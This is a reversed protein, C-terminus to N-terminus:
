RGANPKHVKRAAGCVYMFAGFDYSKPAKVNPFSETHAARTRWLAICAYQRSQAFPSIKGTVVDIRRVHHRLSDKSKIARDSRFIYDAIEQALHPVRLSEQTVISSHQLSFAALADIM